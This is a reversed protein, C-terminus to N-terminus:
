FNKVPLYECMAHGYLNNADLYVIYSEEKSKDYSEMYKNNAQAHRKSIQSIGGRIGSEIFLYMELDTILELEIKTKKLM